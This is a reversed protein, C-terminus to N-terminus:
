LHLPILKALDIWEGLGRIYMWGSVLLQSSVEGPADGPQTLAELVQSWRVACRRVWIARVGAGHAVLVSRCRCRKYSLAKACDPVRSDCRRVRM